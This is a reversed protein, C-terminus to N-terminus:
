AANTDGPATRVFLRRRAADELVREVDIVRPGDRRVSLLARQGPRLVREREGDLALVGPGTVEATEGLRLRRATAVSIRQYSGPLIPADVEFSGPGFELLLASDEAASVPELLGGISTVGLATAEARTLVAVRLAAGDWIARSGTFRHSVLVADVLALDDDEGEIEVHVAKAQESVGELSVAGTAVLGAAAGAATAEILRPFVCNTGTAIPILPVDRWGMAAARNTGDGGLTVILACGARRMWASAAITDLVDGTGPIEARTIVAVNAFEMLASEGIRNEDPMYVLESAGAAMAGAVLRRVIASKELNDIVSARAVLRRIDKGAAPNAIIGITEGV